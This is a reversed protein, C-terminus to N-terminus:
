MSKCKNYTDFVFKEIQRLQSIDDFIYETEYPTSDFKHLTFLNNDQRIYVRCIWRYQSNLIYMYAYRSTKKYSVNDIGLMNKIYDLVELEEPLFDEDKESASQPDLTEISTTPSIMTKLKDNILEAIYDNMAVLTLERFRDIVSQTKVGSYINKILARVFQESPNSFQEAIANKLLSTYKLESASDLIGKTDFCEKRFKALESITNDKFDLINIEFFPTMDMKNAEELDSYFKYVIGNTLVGFRAKTVTFYRFLQNIHKANLETNVPKVEIIVAPDSNKIIAYDVKEGKKTGTDATYEPVFELPNFIDYGLLQFFPLVISTKTAEETFISEKLKSIRTSFERLEDAFNM